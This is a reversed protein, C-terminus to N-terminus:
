KMAELGLKNRAAKGSTTRGYRTAVHKLLLAGLQRGERMTEAFHFGVYLLGEPAILREKVLRKALPAAKGAATLARELIALGEDRRRAEIAVDKPSQAIRIVALELLAEAPPPDIRTLPVLMKAAEDLKRASKAARARSLLDKELGAPDLHRFLYLLPDARRDGSRLWDGLKRKLPGLASARPAREHGKLIKAATWMADVDSASSLRRVLLPTASAMRALSSAARDRLTGDEHELLKALATAVPAVDFEALKEVAFRRVPPHPAQVLKLLVPLTSRPMTVRQLAQLAHSTVDHWNPDRLMPLLARALADHGPGSPSMQELGLLAARRTELPVKPAALPVLAKEAAPGGLAGLIRALAARAAENKRARKDGLAAAAAKALALRDAPEMKEAAARIEGTAARAVEPDPDFVSELLSQSTATGGVLALARM